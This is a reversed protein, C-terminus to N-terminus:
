SGSKRWRQSARVNEEQQAWPVLVTARNTSWLLTVCLCSIVIHRLIAQRLSDKLAHQPTHHGRTDDSSIGSFSRSKSEAADQIARDTEGLTDMFTSRCVEVREGDIDFFNHYKHKERTDIDKRPRKRAVENREIRAVLYSLKKNYDGQAWYENFLVEGIETTIIKYCQRIKCEHPPKFSRAARVKGNDQLYRQVSNRLEGKQQRLKTNRGREAPTQQDDNWVTQEDSGLNAASSEEEQKEVLMMLEKRRQVTIISRPAPLERDWALFFITDPPQM